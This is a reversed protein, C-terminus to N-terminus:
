LFEQSMWLLGKCFIQKPSGLEFPYVTIRASFAVRRASHGWFNEVVSCCDESFNGFQHVHAAPSYLKAQRLEEQLAVAKTESM